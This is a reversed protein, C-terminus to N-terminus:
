DKHIEESTPAYLFGKIADIIRSVPNAFHTHESKYLSATYEAEAELQAESKKEVRSKAVADRFMQEGDIHEKIDVGDSM